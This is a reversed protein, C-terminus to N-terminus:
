KGATDKRTFKELSKVTKREDSPYRIFVKVEDKGRSLTQVELGYFAQRVQSALFAMTIGYNKASPM